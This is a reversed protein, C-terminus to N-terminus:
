RRPLDRAPPLSQAATFPMSEVLKEDGGGEAHRWFTMLEGDAGRLHPRILLAANPGTAMSQLVQEWGAADQLPSGPSAAAGGRGGRGAALAALRGTWSNAEAEAEAKLDSFRKTMAEHFGVWAEHFLFLPGGTPTRDLVAMPAGKIATEQGRRPGLGVGLLGRTAESPPGTQHYRYRLLCYKLWGYTHPSLVDGEHLVLAHAHEDAPYWAEVLWLGADSPGRVPRTFLVPGHPWRFGRQAYALAEEDAGAELLLRLPVRDGLYFGKSLSNLTARLPALRGGRVVITVQPVSWQHLAGPPLQSIWSADHAVESSLAILTHPQTACAAATAQAVAVRRGADGLAPGAEQVMAYTASAAPLPTAPQVLAHVVAAPALTELIGALHGFVEDYVEEVRAAAAMAGKGLDLPYALLVRQDGACASPPAGAARAIAGCQDAPAAVVLLPRGHLGVGAGHLFGEYLPRLAEASGVDAAVLLVQDRLEAPREALGRFRGGRTVGLWWARDRTPTNSGSKAKAGPGTTTAGIWALRHASDAWTSKDDPDVPMVVSPVGAYKRLLLSVQLDEATAFTPPVERFLTILWATRLFWMSCLYDTEVAREVLIGYAEDPFYVGGSGNLDRYSGFRGDRGPRPLIWGISGLVSAGLERTHAAHLMQELFRAGPIMDDDIVLVFQTPARTAVQMRGYYKLNLASSIVAISTRPDTYSRAVRELTPAIPSGFIVVWIHSPVASQGLLAELQACLTRRQFHNLLVTVAVSENVRPRRFASDLGMIDDLTPRERQVWTSFEAQRRARAAAPKMDEETLQHDERACFDEEDGPTLARGVFLVVFPVALVVALLRRRRRRGHARAVM